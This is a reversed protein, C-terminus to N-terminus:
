LSWIGFAQTPGAPPHLPFWASFPVVDFHRPHEIHKEKDRGFPPLEKLKVIPFDVDEDEVLIEDLIMEDDIICDSEVIKGTLESIFYVM